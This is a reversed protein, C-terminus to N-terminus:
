LLLACYRQYLPAFGAPPSHGDRVHQRPSNEPSGAQLPHEPAVWTFLPLESFLPRPAAIASPTLDRQLTDDCCECHRPPPPASESASGEANLFQHCASCAAENEVKMLGMWCCLHLPVAMLLALLLQTATANMPLM